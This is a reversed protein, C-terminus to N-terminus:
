ANARYLHYRGEPVGNPLALAEAGVLDLRQDSLVLAGPALSPPLAQSVFAALDANAATDGSGMDAHVLVVRRPFDEAAKPLTRRFDGLYLREDSPICDPHAAVKREFVYIPWREGPDALRGRLHDYTRGNGLGLEFVPGTRGAIAACAFDLCARQAELRRCFSDLRSM